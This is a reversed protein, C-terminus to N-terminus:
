ETEEKARRNWDEIAKIREDAVTEIEGTRGLQIEFIYNIRPTHVDCNTCM